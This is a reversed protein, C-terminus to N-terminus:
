GVRIRGLTIASKLIPSRLASRWRIEKGLQLSKFCSPPRRLPLSQGTSRTPFSRPIARSHKAMQIRTRTQRYVRSGAKPLEIPRHIKLAREVDRNQAGYRVDGCRSRADASGCSALSPDFRPQAPSRARDRSSDIRRRCRSRRSVGRTAIRSARMHAQRAGRACKRFLLARGDRPRRPSARYCRERVSQPALMPAKKDAAIALAVRETALQHIFRFESEGAEIGQYSRLAMDLKDAMQRQRYPGFRQAALDSRKELRVESM